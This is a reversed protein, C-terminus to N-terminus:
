PYEISIGVDALPGEARSAKDEDGGAIEVLADWERRETQIMPETSAMRREFLSKAVWMLSESIGMGVWWERLGDDPPLLYNRLVWLSHDYVDQWPEVATFRDGDAWMAATIVSDAPNGFKFDLDHMEGLSQDRIAELHRPMGRFYWKQDYPPSGEPFPNRSSESAFFVAVAGSDRFTVAWHEGQSNDELYTQGRWEQLYVPQHNIFWFSHAICNLIVGRRLQEVTPFGAERVSDYPLSGSSM